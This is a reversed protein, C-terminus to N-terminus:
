FLSTGQLRYEAGPDSCHSTERVDQIAFGSRVNKFIQQNLFCNDFTQYNVGKWQASIAGPEGPNALRLSQYSVTVSADMPPMDNSIGGTCRVRIDTAGLAALLSEVSDEVSDCNYYVRGFDWNSSIYFDQHVTARRATVAASAGQVSFFFALLTILKM